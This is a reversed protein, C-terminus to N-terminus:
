KSRLSGSLHFRVALRDYARFSCSKRMCCLLNLLKREAFGDLTLVLSGMFCGADQLNGMFGVM